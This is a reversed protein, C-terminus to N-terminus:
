AYGIVIALTIFIIGVVYLVLLKPFLWKAWDDWQIKAMGLVGMTVGSTPIILNNIGDGLQYILVVTQRTLGILDGLPAMIPITLAAQGSGSPVFINIMAQVVLMLNGSVIPNLENILGSLYHLLTDITNAETLIILISKSLAIVLVAGLVDSMGRQFASVAENAKLGGILASLVGLTLFLGSLEIIYWGWVNVGYVLLGMAFIFLSFITTQQWSLQNEKETEQLDAQEIVESNYISDAYRKVMFIGTITMALWLLMRFEAGSFIPIDALGQGIGVTFPNYVAGAFGLGAGVFPIAVGVIKNYGLALSLTVFLPTFVITEESMGFTAGMVSFFTMFFPIFLPRFRPNEKFFSASRHIIKKITQTEDILTFVGAVILVFLIIEIASHDLFGNIPALILDSIGTPNSEIEHYSGPVVVQKGNKEVREFTGGPIVWTLGAFITLLLLLLIITNPTKFKKKQSM